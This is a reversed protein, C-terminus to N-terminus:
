IFAYAHHIPTSVEEVFWTLCHAMLIDAYTTASGVLYVGGNETLITEFRTAFAHFKDKALQQAAKLGEPSTRKFALPLISVILDNIAEAIQTRSCFM